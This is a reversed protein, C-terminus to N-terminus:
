VTKSLVYLVLHKLKNYPAYQGIKESATRFMWTIKQSFFNHGLIVSNITKKTFIHYLQTWISKKEMKLDSLLLRLFARFDFNQMKFFTSLVIQTKLFKTREENKINKM